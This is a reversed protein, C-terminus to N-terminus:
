AVATCNHVTAGSNNKVSSPCRGTLMSAHDFKAGGIVLSSDNCHEAAPVGGVSADPSIGAAAGTLGVITVCGLETEGGSSEFGVIMEEGVTIDGLSEFGVITEWGVPVDGVSSMTSSPRGLVFSFSSFLSSRCVGFELDLPTKSNALRAVIRCADDITNTASMGMITYCSSKNTNKASVVLVYSFM